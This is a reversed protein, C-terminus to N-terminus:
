NQLTRHYKLNHASILFSALPTSTPAIYGSFGTGSSLSTVLFSWFFFAKEPHSHPPPLQGPPPDSGCPRLGPSKPFLNQSLVSSHIGLVCPVSSSLVDATMLQRRAGRQLDRLRSAGGASRVREKRGAGESRHASYCQKRRSLKGLSSM